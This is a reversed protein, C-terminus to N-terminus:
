VLKLIQEKIKESTLLKYGFKNDARINEIKIMFEDVLQSSGLCIQDIHERGIPRMIIRKHAKIAGFLCGIILVHKYSKVLSQINLKFWNRGFNYKELEISSTNIQKNQNTQIFNDEIIADLDIIIINSNTKIENTLFYHSLRSPCLVHIIM